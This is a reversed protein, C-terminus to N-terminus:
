LIQYKRMKRYLTAQSCGLEKAIGRKADLTRGSKALMNQILQKEYEETPRLSGDQTDNVTGYPRLCRDEPTQGDAPGPIGRRRELRPMLTRYDLVPGDIFSVGYEVINELERVNGPWPYSKLTDMLKPEVGQIEKDLIHNFRALFYEILVPIDEVRDRLPPIHIPIVELRYFLDERFKGERVLSYLDRNSSAVIRVDVKTTRLGGVRTIEKEQLVRLLKAQIHLPIESIEDLFVTGRAALEFKGPKGGKKAGSFAGEEYGFLESEILSEPLAACNVALFIEERRASENHLVRAFLEKGTGSEGTLLVASDTKAARKIMDQLDRTQQSIGIIDSLRVSDYDYIVRNLARHVRNLPYITFVINEVQNEYEVPNPICFYQNYNQNRYYSLNVQKLKGSLLERLDTGHIPFVQEIAMGKYLKIHDLYEKAKRNYGEIHGERDIMVIGDSISDFTTQLRRKEKRLEAFLIRYSVEHSILSSMRHLFGRVAESRVILERRQEENEAFIGMVGVVEGELSIPTCVEATERCKVRTSCQLCLRNERADEIFFSEGCVLCKAFVCNDPLKDGIQNEYLGTGAIRNLSADVVTVSLVLISTIIEAIEQIETSYLKLSFNRM